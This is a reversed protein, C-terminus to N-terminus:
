MLAGVQRTNLDFDGPAPDLREINNLLVRADEKSLAQMPNRKVVKYADRFNGSSLYEQFQSKDLEMCLRPVRRICVPSVRLTHLTRIQHQFAPFAAVALATLLVRLLRSM